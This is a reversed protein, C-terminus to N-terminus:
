KKFPVFDGWIKNRKALDNTLGEIYSAINSENNKDDRFANGNSIAAKLFSNYNYIQGTVLLSLVNMVDQCAFPSKTLLPSREQNLTDRPYAGETKTVTAVGEKWRYVLGDPDNLVQRSAGFFLEKNQTKMLAQTLKSGRFRGNKSRVVGSNRLDVNENLLPPFEGDQVGTLPIGTSADYSVDYPTLPDYLSGFDLDLAPKFNIQSKTFYGSNDECS